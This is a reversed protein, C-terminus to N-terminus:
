RPRPRRPQPEAPMRRCRFAGRRRPCTPPTRWRWCTTSPSRARRPWDSRRWGTSRASALVEARAGAHLEALDLKPRQGPSRRLFRRGRVLAGRMEAAWHGATMARPWAAIKMLHKLAAALAGEIKDLDSRGLSEVEEILNPWDVAENVGREGAALRRLLDAQRDVWTAYDTEYLDSM